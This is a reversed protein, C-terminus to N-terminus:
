APERAAAGLLQGTWRRTLENPVGLQDLIRATVTDLLEVVGGPAGYFSPSAPLVIAGAETVAVMNRLHVLNYPSERLVLILRKREKLMVDAARGVLDTSVGSAIRALSGASCPVIAMAEFGASGSAFPALMDHSKYIPFPYAEAPDTGVEDGWVLRGFRTFVVHVDLELQEAHEALFGLIRQAYPSGSAGTVGIVIRRAM